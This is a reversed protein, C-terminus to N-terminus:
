NCCYRIAAFGYITLKLFILKSPLTEILKVGRQNRNIKIMIFIM